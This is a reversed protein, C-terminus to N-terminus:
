LDELVKRHSSMNEEKFRSVKLSQNLGQPIPCVVVREDIDDSCFDFETSM